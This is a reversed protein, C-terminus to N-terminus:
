YQDAIERIISIAEAFEEAGQLAPGAYGRPGARRTGLSAASLSKPTTSALPPVSPKADGVSAWKGGCDYQAASWAAM